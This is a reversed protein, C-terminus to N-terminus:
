PTLIRNLFLNLASQLWPISAIMRHIIKQRGTHYGLIYLNLYLSSYNQRNKQIHTFGTRACKPLFTPQPHKLYPASSYKPRLLVLNPSHLFSCSSSFLRYEEGFIIRTILDLLIPHAPFSASTPSLFTIYLRKSPFGSPFLGSLLGLRLHSSLILISRWSTPHTWPSSQDPEPYLCTTPMQLHPLSIKPEM